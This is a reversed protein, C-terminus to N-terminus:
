STMRRLSPRLIRWRRTPSVLQVSAVVFVLSMAVWAELSRPWFTDRRIGFPQPETAALGQSVGGPKAGPENAGTAPISIAPDDPAVGTPGGDIGTGPVDIPVAGGFGGVGVSIAGNTVTNLRSCWGGYGDSAGCIVDYQAAFPNFWLLAEPARGKIPGVGTTGIGGFAVNSVVRSGAGAMTNWFLVGFLTGLTLFLVTFFTVVTAGQTRQMVASIFLGLSGLGLASVILVVYARVVDDPGVGGFVFVLATLPISAAILLFVYALASLLKGVVIALSSIPTATLMDLTQKERELSISGATFAPALFVVLLTEVLVLAGFVEQGVLSSAFAASGGQLAASAVYRQEAVLEWAWAFAGLFLLYFTLVVFARRGRVRGRLEKVGVAAISDIGRAGAQLPNRRPRKERPPREGVIETPVAPAPGDAVTVDNSDGAAVQDNSPSMLRDTM